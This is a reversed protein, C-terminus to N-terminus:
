EPERPRDSRVCRGLRVPCAEGDPHCAPKELSRQVADALGDIFVKEEGVVPVRLYTEIGLKRALEAYEHDLEVLTEVHESVFAVPDILVGVGDRAAEELAEPTSPGLWELPGVRSQYCIKWDWGDGLCAAVAKCTEEIQWQYPDGRDVIKRPLGHASFLLRVRPRGAAEWSRRILAVHADILGQNDYWCCITHTRGVGAYASRWATLSSGTTTTSFQPYLPALVIEDPQFAAVDAAVQATTPKWYRMAVFTRIEANSIRGALSIELATAQAQTLPVIPSGGGMLAYNATATKRRLRSILFALPRRIIWPAEIIAPDSFLNELFPEVAAPGDPGGLNFLVVAIRKVQNM